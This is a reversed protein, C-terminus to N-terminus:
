QILRNLIDPAHLKNTLRSDVIIIVVSIDVFCFSCCGFFFVLLAHMDFRHKQKLASLFAAIVAVVISDLLRCASFDRRISFIACAMRQMTWVCFWIWIAQNAHTHTHSSHLTSCWASIIFCFRCKPVAMTRSRSASYKVTIPNRHGFFYFLLALNAFIIFYDISLTMVFLLVFLLVFWFPIFPITYCKCSNHNDNSYPVLETTKVTGIIVCVCQRCIVGHNAYHKNQKRYKGADEDM